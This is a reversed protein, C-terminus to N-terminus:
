CWALNPGGAYPHALGKAVLEDALDVGDAEILALARFYKGRAILEIKIMKAAKLRETLFNRAAIALLREHDCRSNMEPTDIGALRIPLRDGSLSPM